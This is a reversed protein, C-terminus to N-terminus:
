SRLNEFQVDGYLKREMGPTHEFDATDIPMWRAGQGNSLPM